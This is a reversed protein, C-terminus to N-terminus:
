KQLVSFSVMLTFHKLIMPASALLAQNKFMFYYSSALPSLHPAEAQRAKMFSPAVAQVMVTNRKMKNLQLVIFPSQRYNQSVVYDLVVAFKQDEQTWGETSPNWACTKLGPKTVAQTSSRVWPKMCM